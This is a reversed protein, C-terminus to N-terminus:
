TLTYKVMSENKLYLLPARGPQLYCAPNRAGGVPTVDGVGSGPGSTVYIRSLHVSGLNWTACHTAWRGPICLPFLLPKQSAKGRLSARPHPTPASFPRPPEAASPMYVRLSGGRQPQHSLCFKNDEGTDLDTVNRLNVDNHLM